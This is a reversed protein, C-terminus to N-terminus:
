NAAADRGGGYMGKPVISVVVYREPTRVVSMDYSVTDSREYGQADVSNVRLIVSLLQTLNDQDGAFCDLVEVGTSRRNPSGSNMWSSQTSKLFPGAIVYQALRQVDQKATSSSPFGAYTEAARFIGALQSVDIVDSCNTPKYIESTAAPLPVPPMVDPPLLQVTANSAMSQKPTMQATQFQNGKWAAFAVIAILCVGILLRRVHTM